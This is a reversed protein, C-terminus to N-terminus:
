LEGVDGGFKKGPIAQYLHPYFTARYCKGFEPIRVALAPILNNPDYILRPPNESLCQYWFILGEYTQSYGPEIDSLYYRFFRTAPKNFKYFRFDNDLVLINQNAFNATFGKPPNEVFLNHGLIQKGFTPDAMGYFGSVFLIGVLLSYVEQMLIGRTCLMFQCMFFAAHPVLFILQNTSQVTGLFISLFSIVLSFFFVTFSLRQFNIRSNQNAIAWGVLSVVLLIGGIALNIEWGVLSLLFRLRFPALFCTWFETEASNIMYIVYVGGMPLLMAALILLYQNPKLGTFFLASLYVPLIFLAIPQYCLMGLGLWIGLVMSDESGPGDKLIKFFRSIAFLLFTNAMLVPSLSFCDPGLHSFVIYFFALLYNREAVLQYRHVMRNLWLAQMLVLFAALYRLVHFNLIGMKALGAYVMAPIPATEDLTQAYLWWGESIREGLRIWLLEPLLINESFLLFPIQLLGFLLLLLIFRDWSGLKFYQVMIFAPFVRRNFRISAAQVFHLSAKEPRL